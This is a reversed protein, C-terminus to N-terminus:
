GAAQWAGPRRSGGDAPARRRRGTPLLLHLATPLHWELVAHALTCAHQASVLCHPCCTVLACRSIPRGGCDATGCCATSPPWSWFRRGLALARCIPPLWLCLGSLDVSAPVDAHYSCQWGTQSGVEVDHVAGGVGSEVSRWWLCAQGARWMWCCRLLPCSPTSALQRLWCLNWRKTRLTRCRHPQVM